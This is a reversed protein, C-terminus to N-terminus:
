LTNTNSVTGTPGRKVGKSPKSINAKNSSDDIPNIPQIIKSNDMKNAYGAAANTISSMYVAVSFAETKDDNIWNKVIIGPPLIGKRSTLYVDTSKSKNIYSERVQDLQIIDSKTQKSVPDESLIKEFENSVRQTSEVSRGEWAVRDGIIFGCLSNKARMAAIKQANLNLKAQMSARKGVRIICSGYGVFATEGTSEITIIKGGVPPLIGTQVENLVQQVANNLNSAELIASNPRSFERMTKSTSVITVYVCSQEVDDYVEYIVFGRLLRQVVQVITEESSEEYNNMNDTDTAILELNEILKTQAENSLGGLIEAMSKKANIFAKVYATRKSLRTAIENKMTDYGGIGTAVFGIGSPFRVMKAGLEPAATKGEEINRKNSQVAINIADQATSAQISDDTVRVKDPNNVETSGGQVPPLFDNVSLEIAFVQNICLLAAFIILNKKALM